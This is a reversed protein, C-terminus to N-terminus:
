KPFSRQFCKAVLFTDWKRWGAAQFEKMLFPYVECASCSSVVLEFLQDISTFGERELDGAMIAAHQKDIYCSNQLKAAIADAVSAGAGHGSAADEGPCNTSCRPPDTCLCPHTQLLPRPRLHCPGVALCRVYNVFRCRKWPAAVEKWGM